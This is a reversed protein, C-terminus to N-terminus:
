NCLRISLQPTSLFDQYQLLEVHVEYDMINM